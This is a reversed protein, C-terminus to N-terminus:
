IYFMLLKAFFVISLFLLVWLGAIIIRLFSASGSDKINTNEKNLKM